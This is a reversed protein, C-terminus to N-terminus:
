VYIFCLMLSLTVDYLDYQTDVGVGFLCSFEGEGMSVEFFFLFGHVCGRIGGSSLM